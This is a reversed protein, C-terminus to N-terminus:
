KRGRGKSKKSKKMNKQKQAAKKSTSAPAAAEEEVSEVENSGGADPENDSCGTQQDASHAEVAAAAENRRDGEMSAKQSRLLSIFTQLKSEGDEWRLLLDEVTM